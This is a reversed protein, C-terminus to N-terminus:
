SGRATTRMPVDIERLSADVNCRWKPGRRRVASLVEEWAVRDTEMAIAIIEKAQVLDKRRKIASRESREPAILLKHAAYRLPPPVRVLVGSGHLAVVEISEEALYEMFPLAEAGAGLAPIEVPSKRGRGLKTLLEVQFGNAASFMKPLRDYQSLKASFTPDARKLVAEFDTVEGSAAFAAVLFDADETMVAAATLHAGLIAAYNQYAATGVLTLGRQFLGANAVAELVRGLVLGPAPLRAAKLAAIASQRQKGRAAAQRVRAAAAEVEPDGARGLLRQVRRGADRETAYLYDHGRIKRQSVSGGRGEALAVDQLLSAYLTQVNLPLERM